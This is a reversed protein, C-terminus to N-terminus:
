DNNDHFLNLDYKKNKESTYVNINILPSLGCNSPKIKKMLINIICIEEAVTVCCNNGSNWAILKM